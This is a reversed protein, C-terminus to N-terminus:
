ILLIYTATDMFFTTEKTAWYFATAELPLCMLQFTLATSEELEGHTGSNMSLEPWKSKM